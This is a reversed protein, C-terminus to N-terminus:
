SCIPEVEWPLRLVTYHAQRAGATAAAELVREIEPENIFPIIPAVNVDVPM